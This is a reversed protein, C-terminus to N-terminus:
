GKGRKEDTNLNTIEDVVYLRGQWLYSVVAVSGREVGDKSSLDYGVLRTGFLKALFVEWRPPPPPTHSKHKM